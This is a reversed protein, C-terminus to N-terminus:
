IFSTGMGVKYIFVGLEVSTSCSTWSLVPSPGYGLTAPESALVREVMTRVQGWAWWQWNWRTEWWKFRPRESMGLLTHVQFQPEPLKYTLPLGMKGCPERWMYRDSAEM